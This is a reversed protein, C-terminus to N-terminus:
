VNDTSDKIFQVINQQQKKEWLKTKMLRMSYVINKKWIFIPNEFNLAKFM